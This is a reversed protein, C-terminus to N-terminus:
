LFRKVFARNNESGADPIAFVVNEFSAATGKGVLEEYFLAAVTDPKNKFVGCGYAGLVIDKDGRASLTSLLLEIKERM